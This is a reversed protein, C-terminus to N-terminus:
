MLRLKKMVQIRCYLMTDLSELGDGNKLPLFLLSVQSLVESESWFHWVVQDLLLAWAVQSYIMIIAVSSGDEAIGATLLCEQRDKLATAIIMVYILLSVM